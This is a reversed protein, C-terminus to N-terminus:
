RLEHLHVPRLDAGDSVQKGRGEGRRRSRLSATQQWERELGGHGQILHPRTMSGAKILGGGSKEACAAEALGGERLRFLIM